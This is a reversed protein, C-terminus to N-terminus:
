MFQQGSQYQVVQGTSLLMLGQTPNYMSTLNHGYLQKIFMQKLYTDDKHNILAKSNRTSHDEHKFLWM